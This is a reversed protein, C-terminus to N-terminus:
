PIVQLRPLRARLSKVGAPTVRASQLDLVRLEAMGHLHPLGADTVHSLGGLTQLRTLGTLRELGRDTIGHGFVLTRLATLGRVHEVGDDDVRTGDMTLVELDALRRLHALGASTIRTHDLRLEKLRVLGKLEALGSDTIGGVVCNKLSLKRLTTLKAVTKLGADSIWTNELDLEELAPLARLYELHPDHTGTYALGLARLKPLDKLQKLDEGRTQTHNLNLRRLGPLKRLDALDTGGVRTWSLDLDELHRMDALHQLFPVREQAPGFPSPKEIIDVAYCERLELARLSTLGRLRSLGDATINVKRLALTQLSTFVAVHKMDADCVSLGVLTVGVVPKGPRQEDSMVTGGRQKIAAVADVVVAIKKALAEARRRTELDKATRATHRLTELAPAGLLELARTAAQREEFDASGLQAILRDIEAQAAGGAIRQGSAALLVFALVLTGPVLPKM